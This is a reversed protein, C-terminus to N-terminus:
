ARARMLIDRVTGHFWPRRTRPHIIGAANMRGAVAKSGLGQAELRRMKALVELEAPVEVLRGRKFRYGLPPKGSIRKGQRRLEALAAKTREGIQARELEALAGLMHVFFKGMPTDTDLSEGLSVLRWGERRAEDVLTIADRISRTVRDLKTAVLASAEGRKLAVRTRTLGPRGATTKASIGRDEEIRLLELGHAACHAEILRRQAKLSVGEVAQDTTSVRAYGVVATTAKSGLARRRARTPVPTTEMRAMLTDPPAPMWSKGAAMVRLEESLGRSPGTAIGALEAEGDPLRAARRV